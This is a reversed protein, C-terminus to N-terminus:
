RSTSRGQGQVPIRVRVDKRYITMEGFFEDKHSIGPPFEPKGVQVGKAEFRFRERYMYYGDAIAFHM